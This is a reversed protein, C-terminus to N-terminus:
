AVIAAAGPKNIWHLHIWGLPVYHGNNDSDAIRHGNDSTILSVPKEITVTAGNAWTYTRRLETSIDKSENM